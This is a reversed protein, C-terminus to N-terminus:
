CYPLSELEKHQISSDLIQSRIFSEVQQWEKVYKQYMDMLADQVESLPMGEELSIQDAINELDTYARSLKVWKQLKDSGESTLQALCKVQTLMSLLALNKNEPPKEEANQLHPVVYNTIDQIKAAALAQKRLVCSSCYGCQQIKRRHKSDCSSTQGAFFSAHEQPIQACMKAKTWFLFPNKIEFKEKFILGVLKGLKLLTLPHVSRTHDLGIESARYPLNIAGIGNEYVHLQKQGRLYACAAGIMMFVVGRARSVSNKILPDSQDFRIPVQCLDLQGPFFKQFDEYLQRQQKFVQDNSGTGLLVFELQNDKQFQAFLGALADLGGSWLAVQNNRQELPFLLPEREINRGCSQRPTFEFSWKKGTSWTLLDTLADQVDTHSMQEPNRVPLTIHIHKQDQELNQVTLRDATHIALALDMLDAVPSPFSAQVRYRLSSDDLIVIVSKQEVSPYEIFHVINQKGLIDPFEFCIDYAPDCLSHKNM